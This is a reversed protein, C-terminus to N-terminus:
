VVYGLTPSNEAIQFLEDLSIEMSAYDFYDDDREVLVCFYRASVQLYSGVIEFEDDDIPSSAEVVMPLNQDSLDKMENAPQCATMPWDVSAANLGYRRVLVRLRRLEALLETSLKLQAWGEGMDIPSDLRVVLRPDNLSDM